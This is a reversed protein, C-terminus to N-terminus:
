EDLLLKQYANRFNNLDFNSEAYKRAYYSMKIYLDKDKVLQSIKESCFQLFSESEIQVSKFGNEGDLVHDSISGVATSIVPIGLEMAEMIVLPFGERTSPIILVSITSFEKRIISPDDIGEIVEVNKYDSRSLEFHDIIMKFKLDFEVKLTALSLFLEPRKEKSFRGVFGIQFDKFRDEVLSENFDMIQIGNPIIEFRKLYLDDIGENKYQNEYDKLTKKNIVVRKDILPIYHIAFSEIGFDPFSFAHTLDITRSKRSIRPLLSYFYTSNCGFLTMPIVRSIIILILTCIRKINPKNLIFVRAHDRFDNSVPNGDTFDFLVIVRRYQNVSKIIELHVKDAGGIKSYPAIFIIMRNKGSKFNM